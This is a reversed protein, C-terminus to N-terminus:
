ENRLRVSKSDAATKGDGVFVFARSGAFNILLGACAGIALAPVAFSKQEEFVFRLLAAYILFNAVAAIIQTGFYSAYERAPRATVRERFTWARNLYWTATVATPFSVLRAEYLGWGSAVLIMLCGADLCFGIFGVAAFRPLVYDLPSDQKAPRTGM